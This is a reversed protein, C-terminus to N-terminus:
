KPRSQSNENLFQKIIELVANQGSPTFGHGEGDMVKLRANRYEKQAREAYSLPVVQDKDGHFIYVPGEYRRITEYVELGYLCEIYGRGITTGWLNITEPIDAGQPYQKVWDDKICFAPYILILKDILDKHNGATLASVMGGQSEGILIIREPDIGNLGQLGTIVAELDAIESCISMETTKGDSKCFNGGGCFDYIYVAYGLPALAEAYAIGFRHSSGFGHSVIIVPAKQVGEPRYLVGYIRQEGKTLWLEEHTVSYAEPSKSQAKKSSGCSAIALVIISLILIRKM